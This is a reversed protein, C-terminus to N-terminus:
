SASKAQTTYAGENEDRRFKKLLLLIELERPHGQALKEMADVFSDIIFGIRPSRRLDTNKYATNTIKLVTQLIAEDRQKGSMKELEHTLVHMDNILSSIFSVIGDVSADNINQRNFIYELRYWYDGNQPARSVLYLFFASSTGFFTTLCLFFPLKVLSMSFFSQLGEAGEAVFHNFGLITIVGLGLFSILWPGKLKWTNIIM